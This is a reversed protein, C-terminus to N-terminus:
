PDSAAHCAIAKQDFRGGDFFQLGERDFGAAPDDSSDLPEGRLGSRMSAFLQRPEFLVAETLAVVPDDVTDVVCSSDDQDHLDAM